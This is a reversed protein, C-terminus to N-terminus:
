KDLEQEKFLFAILKPLYKDTGAFLCLGACAKREAVAPQLSLYKLSNLAAVANCLKLALAIEESGKFIDTLHRKRGVDGFLQLILLAILCYIGVLKARGCSGGCSQVKCIFHKVVQTGPSYVGCEDCKMYSKACETGYLLVLHEFVLHVGLMIM